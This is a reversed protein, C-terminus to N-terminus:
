KESFFTGELETLKKLLSSSKDTNPLIAVFEPILYSLVVHTSAQDYQWDYFDVYYGDVIMTEALTKKLQAALKDYEPQNFQKSADMLANIIRVDDISANAYTPEYIVWRIFLNDEKAVTFKEMLKNVEAKLRAEDDIQVLYALYLGISESL